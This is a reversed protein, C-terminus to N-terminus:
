LYEKIRLILHELIKNFSSRSRWKQYDFPVSKILTEGFHKKFQKILEKDKGLFNIDFQYMFSRYDVNSTGFMFFKEDIILLKAHLLSRKYVYININNKYLRGLYRGIVIDVLKVESDEPIIISINVGKKAKKILSKVIRESPIFYPTEIMISKKASNILKKFKSETIRSYISPFDQIIELNKHLMSKFRKKNLKGYRGWTHLFSDVLKATIDGRVRLVLERNIIGTLTINMSGLYSISDDILLLKRHNRENNIKINKRFGFFFSKLKKFIKVEGGAKILDNFFELKANSGFADFLVKIEVGEKAKKILEEKFRTGIVDNDFKYTELYIYKKAKAIDKLMEPYIISPESMVKYEKM